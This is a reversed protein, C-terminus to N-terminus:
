AMQLFAKTDEPTPLTFTVNMITRDEKAVPNQFIESQEILDYLLAAKERNRQEMAAVGGMKEVWQFMLGAMYIAFCPPTNYMSHNEAMVKYRLMTPVIPDVERELLDRRLIVVTLGAPGMNKQAGAYILTHATVDIERGLIASSWDAVLPIGGTEPLTNYCTGFITNNGTIHLYAADPSLLEPTIKPIYSFTDAKSSTVAVAKGWREGEALAKGAFQGTVAYNTTQGQRALNMPVASFQMSAGGQLFLVAYDDPIHMLRRLSSEADAIIKEFAASRHSMEMVSCGAGPYSILDEKAQQLIEVPMMSPGASFNYVREM